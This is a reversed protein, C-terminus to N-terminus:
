RKSGSKTDVWCAVRHGPAVPELLPNEQWCKETVWTCRPAFPCAHPKQYLVPADGRHLITKTHAQEHIQPLSGILGLTYPHKPNAYLEKVEAEEIIYGGYM